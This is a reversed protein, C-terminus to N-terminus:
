QEARRVRGGRGGHVVGGPRHGLVDAAPAVEGDDVVGVALVPAPGADLPDDAVGRGLAAPARDDQHVVGAAVAVLRHPGQVPEQGPELRPAVLEVGEGFSEARGARVGLDGAGAQPLALGPDQQHLGRVGERADEDDTEGGGPEQDDAAEGQHEQEGADVGAPYAAAAKAPARRHRFRHRHEHGRVVLGLADLVGHTRQRRALVRDLHDDDVVARAVM